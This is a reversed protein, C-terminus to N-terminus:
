LAVRRWVCARSVLRGTKYACGPSRKRPGTIGFGTAAPDCAAGTCLEAQLQSRAQSAFAVAWLHVLAGSALLKTVIFVCVAGRGRGLGPPQTWDACCRLDGLFPLDWSAGQLSFPEFDWLSGEASRICHLFYIVPVPAPPARPQQPNDSLGRRLEEGKKEPNFHGSCYSAAEM